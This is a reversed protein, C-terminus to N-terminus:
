FVWLVLIVTSFYMLIGFTGLYRYWFVDFHWFYGFLPVIAELEHRLLRSLFQEIKTLSEMYTNNAKRLKCAELTGLIINSM